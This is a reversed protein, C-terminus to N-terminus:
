PYIRIEIFISVGMGMQPTLNIDVDSGNQVLQFSDWMLPNTPAILVFLKNVTTNPINVFYYPGAQITITKGTNNQFVIESNTFPYDQSYFACYSTYPTGLNAVSQTTTKKTSGSQVIPLVETGTLPAAATLQSIKKDM